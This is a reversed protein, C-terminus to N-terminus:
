KKGKRAPQAQDHFSRRDGGRGNENNQRSRALKEAYVDVKASGLVVKHVRRRPERKGANGLFAKGTWLLLLVAIAALMGAAWAAGTWLTDPGSVAASPLVTVTITAASEAGNRDSVTLRVAYTGPRRFAHRVVAGSANAGDGFDWSFAPSPDQPDFSASADFAVEKGARALPDVM